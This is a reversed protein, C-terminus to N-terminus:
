FRLTNKGERLSCGERRRPCGTQSCRRCLFLWYCSCLLRWLHTIDHKSEKYQVMNRGISIKKSEWWTQAQLISLHGASRLSSFGEIPPPQMGKMCANAKYRNRTFCHLVSIFLHLMFDKGTARQVRQETYTQSLRSESRPPINAPEVSQRLAVVM